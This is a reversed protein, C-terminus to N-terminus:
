ELNEYFIGFLIYGLILFCLLIFDYIAKPFWTTALHAEKAIILSNRGDYFLAFLYNCQHWKIGPIKAHGLLTLNIIHFLFRTTKLKFQLQWYLEYKIKKDRKTSFKNRDNIHM